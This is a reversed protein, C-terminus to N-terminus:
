GNSGAPTSNRFYTSVDHEFLEVFRTPLPQGLVDRIPSGNLRDPEGGLAAWYGDVHSLGYRKGAIAMWQDPLWYGGTISRALLHCGCRIFRLGHNIWPPGKPVPAAQGSTAQKARVADVLAVSFAQEDVDRPPAPWSLWHSLEHLVACMALSEATPRDATLSTLFAVDVVAAFGRGRWLGADELQPRLQLDLTPGTWAAAHHPEMALCFNGVQSRPVIYVPEGALDQPAVTRCLRECEALLWQCDIQPERKSM